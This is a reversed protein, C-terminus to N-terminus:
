IVLNTWSCIMNFQSGYFPVLVTVIKKILFSILALLVDQSMQMDNDFKIFIRGNNIFIRKEM